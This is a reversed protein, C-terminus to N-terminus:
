ERIKRWVSRATACVTDERKITHLFTKDEGETSDSKIFSDITQGVSVESIFRSDVSHLSYQARIESPISEIAWQLYKINNAHRYMDADCRQVKFTCCTDPSEIPQIKKSLNCSISEQDCFSWEKKISDFIPTPKRKEIDFFVWLGKARGIPNGQADYIINERTGKFMSYKSLWTRITIKEKYHPYREMEMVGSFLIWGINQEALRYLDYNAVFCHEAATEELLTLMTTPSAVGLQNTEFYRLEFEKDFYSTLEKNEM